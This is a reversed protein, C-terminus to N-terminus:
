HSLEQGQSAKESEALEPNPTGGGDRSLAEKKTGAAM